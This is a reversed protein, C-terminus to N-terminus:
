CDSKLGSVAQCLNDNDHYLITPGFNLGKRYVTERLRVLTEVYYAQNVTQGQPVFEFHVNSKIDLFTILMTKM